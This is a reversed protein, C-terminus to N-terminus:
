LFCTLSVVDVVRLANFSMWIPLRTSMITFDDLKARKRAYGHLEHEELHERALTHRCSTRCRRICGGGLYEQCAKRRGGEEDSVAHIGEVLLM